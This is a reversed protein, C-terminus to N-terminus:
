RAGDAQQSLGSGIQLEAKALLEASSVGLQIEYQGPPVVRSGSREDFIALEDLRNVRELARNVAQEWRGTTLRRSRYATL